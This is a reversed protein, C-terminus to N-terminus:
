DTWLVLLVLGLTALAEIKERPLDALANTTNTPNAPGSLSPLRGLTEGLEGLQAHSYRGITIGPDSHRALIQAHKVSAGAAILLSIYTHRFSHFDAYLPGDAGEIVYPIGADELDKQLMEAADGVWNGPWLPAGVPTSALRQRLGAVLGAPLAQSAGRKNKTKRKPLVVLPTDGDLHFSETTLSALEAARFGTGAALLYLGLRDPGTLGRFSRPSKGVADFLSMLEPVTLDRRDHRRDLQANGARLHALPNDALRRDAVLWAVFAKVAGLYYNSTQVGPPRAVRARLAEVTERSFRRASGQGTGPLGLRRIMAQCSAKSTGVFAAVEALTFSAIAPDLVPLPRVAARFEALWTSVRSASLDATTSFKCGEALRRVRGGQLKVQTESTGGARLGAEWDGVHDLLPRRAHEAAGLGAAGREGRRVLDALMAQAATRDSALPVGKRAPRGPIGYGYWKKAKKTVKKAGRTGKAVREGKANLYSVVTPRKLYPM